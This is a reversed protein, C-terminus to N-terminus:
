PGCCSVWIGNVFAVLLIFYAVVATSVTVALIVRWVPILKINQEQRQQKYATLSETFKEDNAVVAALRTLIQNRAYMGIVEWLVFLGLSITILFASIFMTGPSLDDKVFSWIGFFGAYGAALVVNTYAQAQGFTSSLLEKQAELLTPDKM